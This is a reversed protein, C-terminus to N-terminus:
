KRVPDRWQLKGSPTEHLVLKKTDLENEKAWAEAKEKTSFSKPGKKKAKTTFWFRHKRSTSRIGLKRKLKTHIKSM